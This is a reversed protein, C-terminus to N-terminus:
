QERTRDGQGYKKKEEQQSAKPFGIVCSEVFSCNLSAVFFDSM